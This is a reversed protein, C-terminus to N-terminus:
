EILKLYPLINPPSKQAGAPGRLWAAINLKGSKDM